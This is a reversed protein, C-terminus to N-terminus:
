DKYSSEINLKRARGRAKTHGSLEWTTLVDSAIYITKCFITSPARLLLDDKQKTSTILVGNDIIEITYKM